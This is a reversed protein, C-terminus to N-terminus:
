LDSFIIAGKQMCKGTSEIKMSFCVFTPLLLASNLIDVEIQKRKLHFFKM